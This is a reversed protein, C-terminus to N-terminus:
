IARIEKQTYNQKTLITGMYKFEEATEFSSYDTKM